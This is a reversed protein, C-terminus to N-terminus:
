APKVQTMKIMQSAVEGPIRRKFMQGPVLELLEIPMVITMGPNQARLKACIITPFRLKIGQGAFYQLISVRHGEQKSFWLRVAGVPLIEEIIHERRRGGRTKKGANPHPESNCVRRGKLFRSLESLRSMSKSNPSLANRVDVGGRNAGVFDLCVEILPGRKYMVTSTTDLNILLKGIAPRVSQFWGEALELGGGISRAQMAKFFSKKTYFPNKQIPIMRVVVNVAALAIESHPKEIGKVLDQLVHTKIEAVKKLEITHSRDSDKPMNFTWKREAGIRPRWLFLNSQGDYAGRPNFSAPDVRTQLFDMIELAYRHNPPKPKTDKDDGPKAAAERRDMAPTRLVDYHSFDEKPFDIEFTNTKVITKRGQTGPLRASTRHHIPM